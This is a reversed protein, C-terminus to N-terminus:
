CHLFYTRDNRKKISLHMDIDSIIELEIGTMKLMPDWSLRSSSFYHSPDLEFYELSTKLLSKLFMLRILVNTKLYLDCYDGMAKIKFM